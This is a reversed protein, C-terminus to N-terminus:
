RYYEEKTVLNVRHNRQKFFEIIALMQSVNKHLGGGGGGLFFFFDLRRLIVIFMDILAKSFYITSARHRGHRYSPIRRFSPIESNKPLAIKAKKM